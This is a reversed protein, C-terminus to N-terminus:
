PWGIITLLTCIAMLVELIRGWTCFRQGVEDYDYKFWPWFQPAPVNKQDLAHPRARLWLVFYPIVLLFFVLYFPSVRLEM